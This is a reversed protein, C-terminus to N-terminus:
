RRGGNGLREVLLQAREHQPSLRLTEKLEARAGAEDPIAAYALALRFHIRASQPDAALAAKLRPIAREAGDPEQAIAMGEILAARPDDKFGRLWRNMNSPSRQVRYYDALALQLEPSRKDAKAAPSLLEFAAKAKGRSQGELQTVAPDDPNKEAVRAAQDALADAWQIEIRALAAVAEPFRARPGALALSDRAKAEASAISALTDSRADVDASALMEVAAPPPPRRSLRRWAVLGGGIALLLALGAAVGILLARPPAEDFPGRKRAPAASAQPQEGVARAASPAPAPAKSVPAPRPAITTPRTPVPPPEAAPAADQPGASAGFVMTSPPSEDPVTAPVSAAQLPRSTPQGYVITGSAAPDPASRAPSASPFVRTRGAVEEAAARPKPASPFVMTRGAVDEGASSQPAPSNPAAPAAPAAFVMTMQGPPRQPDAAGEPPRTVRFTSQCKGCRMILGQPGIRADDVRYRAQCKDCRVEM